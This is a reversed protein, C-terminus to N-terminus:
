STSCLVSFGQTAPEIGARGLLNENPTAIGRKEGCFASEEDPLSANGPMAATQQAANQAAQKGGSM